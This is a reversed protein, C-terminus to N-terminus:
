MGRQAQLASRAAAAVADATLGVHALVAPGPGSAGFRDVGIVADALHRWGLTTGAEVAVTVTAPRVDARRAEYRERWPVSIVRVALGSDSLLCAADIALDVESGSALLDVDPDTNELVIRYGDRSLFGPTAASSLAPLGQRSLALVTPGDTHELASRWAEATETVDCPRLVRVNPILRLSDLHEVPQHTPGDEGVAVSDHTLVYIVPQRMLASLRLAPRLYDAFVLFTSGFCRLGGHLSIGNLVAAMAFERIGFDIRSGSYDDPHVSRAGVDTGTSGSLDASGGVLDLRASVAELVLRSSQRTATPRDPLSEAVDAWFEDDLDAPLDGRVARLWTAGRAPDEERLAALRAEWDARAGRGATALAVCASRVEDPVVFSADGDRGVRRKAEALREAGLPSGHAAPTGAVDPAGHGIVTRVAVLSPRPDGVAEALALDIAEVDTGDVVEVVHWGYARFRAPQDDSSSRDVAGDITIRNDDWLVTLRGLSLHGALSAAEHSIGEMLCGDGAIAWTRHGVVEPYRAALMRECLAMGVAMAIGQGLPGTTAEVGPTDGHEPHGPTRSGLQRFGRLDAEGLDYGFLHLLAYQLASGHGASLVFRDRDPWTPATPDHRLYRSFLTWAMPAAGMPMGPHGSNAAEVMDAALLRITDVALQDISTTAAPAPDTSTTASTM